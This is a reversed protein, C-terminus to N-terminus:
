RPVLAFNVIQVKVSTEPTYLPNPLKTTMYLRFGASYPILSDGLKLVLQGAQRYYQWERSTSFTGFM